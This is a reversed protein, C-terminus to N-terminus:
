AEYKMDVIVFLSAIMWWARMSENCMSIKSAYIRIHTRDTDSYKFNKLFTFLLNLIFCSSEIITNLQCSIM